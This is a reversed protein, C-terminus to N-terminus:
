LLLMCPLHLCATMVPTGEQLLNCAGHRLCVPWSPQSGGQQLQVMRGSSGEGIVGLLDLVMSFIIDELKIGPINIWWSVPILTDQGMISGRERPTGPQQGQRVVMQYILVGSFFLFDTVSPHVPLLRCLPNSFLNSDCPM